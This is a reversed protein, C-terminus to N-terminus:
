FAELSGDRYPDALIHRPLPGFDANRESGLLWAEAYPRRWTVVVTREDPAGIAEIAGTPVAGATGLDPTSYVQYGFAFDAATLPQGDHWVVNPKIRHTTIMRGDADVRWADTNLRPLAEVLYPLWAGTHDQVAVQANFLRKSTGLTVGAQQLAGQAVSQPEARVSIVLTRRAESVVAPTPGDSSARPTAPQPTCAVLVLVLVAILLVSHRHACAM